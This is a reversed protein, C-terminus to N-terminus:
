PISDVAERVSDGEKYEAIGTTLKAIKKLRDLLANREPWRAVSESKEIKNIILTALSRSEKTRAHIEEVIMHVAARHAEQRNRERLATKIAETYQKRGNEIENSRYEILGKTAALTVTDHETKNKEAEAIAVKSEKVKGQLALAVAYNNLLSTNKDNAVLGNEAIEQAKVADGLAEIAIYSGMCFPRESFFEDDGWQECSSIAGQWKGEVRLSLARAEHDSDREEFNMNSPLLYEDHIRVWQLQARVNGNPDKAGILFNKRAKGRSGYEM